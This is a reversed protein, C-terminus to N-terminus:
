ENERTASNYNFYEINTVPFSTGGHFRNISDAVLFVNSPHRGWTCHAASIGWRSGIIAAGCVFWNNRDRLSAM